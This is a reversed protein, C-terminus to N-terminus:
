RRASLGPEWYPPDGFARRLHDALARLKASPHRGQPHAIFIHEEETPLGIDIVVLRGADIAPGAIFTPLAAVGLGEIAADRLMDGNNVCLRGKAQISVAGDPGLFRWDAAGRLSYFLGRRQM